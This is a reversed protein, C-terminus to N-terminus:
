PTGGEARVVAVADDIAAEAPRPAWGVLTAEHGRRELTVTVWALGADDDEASWAMQVTTDDYLAPPPRRQQLESLVYEAEGILARQMTFSIMGRRHQGTAAALMTIVVAILALGFVADMLLM